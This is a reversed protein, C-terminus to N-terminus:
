RCFLTGGAALPRWSGASPYQVAEWTYRRVNPPDVRLRFRVRGDHGRVVALLNRLADALAPSAFLAEGLARGYAAHDERQEIARELAKPDIVGPDSEARGPVSLVVPYGDAGRPYIHIRAEVLQWERQRRVAEEARRRHGDARRCAELYQSELERLP